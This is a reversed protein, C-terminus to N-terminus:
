ERRNLQPDIGSAADGRDNGQSNGDGNGNQTPGPNIGSGSFPSSVACSGLVLPGKGTRLDLVVPKGTSDTVFSGLEGMVIVNIGGPMFKKLNATTGDPLTFDKSFTFPGSNVVLSIGKAVSFMNEQVQYTGILEGAQFGDFDTWDKPSSNPHYYYNIAHSKLFVNTMDFNTSQSTVIKSFVATIVATSENRDNPGDGANPGTGARYLFQDPIGAIYHFYLEASGFGTPKGTTCDIGVVNRAIIHQGMGAVPVPVFQVNSATQASATLSALGAFLFRAANTKM